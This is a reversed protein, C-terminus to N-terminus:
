LYVGGLSLDDGEAASLVDTTQRRDSDIEAAHRQLGASLDSVQADRKVVKEVPVSM